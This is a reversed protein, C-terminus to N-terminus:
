YSKFKRENKYDMNKLMKLFRNKKDKEQKLKKSFIKGLPSYEFKAQKVVRPKQGLDEYGLQDEIQFLSLRM